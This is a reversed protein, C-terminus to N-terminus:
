RRPGSKTGGEESEDDVEDELEKLIDEDYDIESATAEAEIGEDEDGAKDVEDVEDTEDYEDADEDEYEDEEEYVDDEYEGGDDEDGEVDEDEDELEEGEYAEEDYEYEDDELDEDDYEDEDEDAAAKGSRSKAAERAAQREATKAPLEAKRIQFSAVTLAAMTPIYWIMGLLLVAGAVLLMAITIPWYMSDAKRYRFVVFAGIAFLLPIGALLAWAPGIGSIALVKELSVNKGTLAERAAVYLGRFGRGGGVPVVHDRDDVEVKYFGLLYVYSLIAFVPALLVAMAGPWEARDGM